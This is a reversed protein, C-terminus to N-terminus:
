KPPRSISRTSSKARAHVAEICRWLRITEIGTGPRIALANRSPPFDIDVALTSQRCPGLPEFSPRTTISCCNCRGSHAGASGLLHASTDFVGPIWYTATFALAITAAKVAPDDSRCRRVGISGAVVM